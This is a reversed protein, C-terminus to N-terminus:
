LSAGDPAPSADDRQSSAHAAADASQARLAADFRKRARHLRVGLTVVSCELIEAAERKDVGDWVLLCLLERDDERLSSLADLVARREVVEEEPSASSDIGMGDVAIREGVARQRRQGRWQDALTRRAVGLLWALEPNPVERRRRWAILFVEAVADKATEVDTRRLAYGLVADLHERFIRAFRAQEDEAEGAATM